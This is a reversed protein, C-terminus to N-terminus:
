GSVLHFWQRHEVEWWPTWKYVNEVVGGGIAGQNYKQEQAKMVQIFHPINPINCGQPVPRSEMWVILDEARGRNEWRLEVM